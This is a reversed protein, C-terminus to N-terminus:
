RSGSLNYGRFDNAGVRLYVENGCGPDGWVDQKGSWTWVRAQVTLGREEIDRRQVGRDSPNVYTRGCAEITGPADDVPSQDLWLFGVVMATSGGIILVGLVILLRRM